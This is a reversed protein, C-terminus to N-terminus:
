STSSGAMPWSSSATPTPPRSPTTPSWSSPRASTASRGGCSTRPDRQRDPLRSQRDARRRLHDGPARGPGPGGGGAAAPRGVAREAPPEAPQEPRRHRRRPGGLRPDIRGGALDMPLTINEIATLTPILNFSQFVFGIRDRRLRTLQRENLTSLDTDGIVARGATLQDLGAMCQMLTSKGSGSPGMIATMRGAEFAADVGDLATVRTDGSGYIKTAGVAAAAVQMSGARETPPATSLTTTM